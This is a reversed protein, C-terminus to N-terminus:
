DVIAAAAVEEVDYACAGVKALINGDGQGDLRRLLVVLTGSASEDEANLSADEM